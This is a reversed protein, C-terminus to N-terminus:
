ARAHLMFDRIKDIVTEVQADTMGVFLPLTLCENAYRDSVPYSDRDM